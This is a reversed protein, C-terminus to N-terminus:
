LQEWFFWKQQKKETQKVLVNVLLTPYKVTKNKKTSNYTSCTMKENKYELTKEWPTDVHNANRSSSNNQQHQFTGSEVTYFTTHLITM